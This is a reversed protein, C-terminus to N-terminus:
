WNKKSNLGGAMTKATDTNTTKTFKGIKMEDYNGFNALALSDTSDPSGRGTRKKYDKKSEIVLQGKKNFDKNITPLEETYVSEPLLSLGNPDKMDDRLLAFMRAKTDYYQEKDALDENGAGFHVGRVECDKPLGGSQGIAAMLNDYVGTGIGTKDVVVVNAGGMERSAQIVQGTIGNTDEGTVDKRFKQKKGHLGTLVTADSGQEAGAVDVGITKRDEVKPTYSRLFCEEVVDLGILTKEGAKPFEGLIKSVTLPHDIGWKAAKQVVWKATLLYPTTVKYKEVYKVAEGDNMRNYKTIEEVLKERDTIGNAVLNPSDFCSLHVKTWERSKFCRYFESSRSTPNGIAVFKVHASTMLGEAMNWLNTPIGTAEDFIVLVHPAHFGQFSSQTGQGESSMVENRPTFGLAFWEPGLAWDTLNLKGGLPWLSRSVAARIETWLIREVQTFTPATTIVKSNPFVNLFTVAIRAMIFSKGLDHCARIATRENAWIIDIVKEQFPDLTKVGLIKKIFLKADGQFAKTADVIGQLDEPKVQRVASM